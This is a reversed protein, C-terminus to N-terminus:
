SNSTSFGTTRVQGYWESAWCGDFEKPGAPWSLVAEDFPLRFAAYVAKLTEEPKSIIQESDVVVVNSKGWAGGSSTLIDYLSTLDTIGVEELTCVANSAFSSIVKLPDRLLIIHKDQELFKNMVSSPKEGGVVDVKNGLSALGKVKALELVTSQKAMHKLFRVPRAPDPSSSKLLDYCADLDTSHSQSKLLEARYPRSLHPNQHLHRGYVIPNILPQYRPLFM